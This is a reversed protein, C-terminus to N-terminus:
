RGPACEAAKPLSQVRTMGQPAEFAFTDASMKAGPQWNTLQVIFQPAGKEKKSTIVFRLPLPSTSERIWIQWDVDEGEFALHNTTVGDVTEKDIVKGSKVQETLISYPDAYLLDAGPAEIHFKKRAEDIAEDITAPAPASAYTDNAKCSLTMQKGDYYFAMGNKAGIQESRMRNPREVSVDSASLVQIKQGGKMVVEDAATSRVTFSKLGALYDSMQHLLRDAEPDIGKKSPSAAPAKDGPPAAQGKVAIFVGLGSAVVLLLVARLKTM